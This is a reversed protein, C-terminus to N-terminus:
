DWAVLGAEKPAAEPPLHLLKATDSDGVISATGGGMRREASMRAQEQGSGVKGFVLVPGAGAVGEAVFSSAATSAGVTLGAEATKAPVICDTYALNREQRGAAHVLVVLRPPPMLRDTTYLAFTDGPHSKTM